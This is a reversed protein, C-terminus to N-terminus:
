YYKIVTKKLFNFTILLIFTKLTIREGCKLQPKFLLRKFFNYFCKHTSTEVLVVLDIKSLRYEFSKTYTGDIIYCENRTIIDISNLTEAENKRICKDHYLYNDLDFVPIGLKMSLKLARTSKGAGPSGIVNIRRYESLNIEFNNKMNFILFIVVNESILSNSLFHQLFIILIFYM